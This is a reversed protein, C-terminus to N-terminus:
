DAEQFLVTHLLLTWPYIGNIVFELYRILHIYNQMNVSANYQCWCAEKIWM